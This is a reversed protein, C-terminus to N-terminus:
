RDRRLVKAFCRSHGVDVFPGFPEIPEYGASRYLSIAATLLDGTELRVLTAGAAAADDELAQLVARAVGRGRAEPNTFMRNAEATTGDLRIGGCGVAVGDLRAVVFSLYEAAAPRPASAGGGPGYHDELDRELAAMLAVAEPATASVRSVDIM